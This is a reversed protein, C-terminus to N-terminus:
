KQHVADLTHLGKRNDIESYKVASDLSDYKFSKYFFVTKQESTIQHKLMLQKDASKM